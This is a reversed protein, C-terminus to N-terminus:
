FYVLVNDNVTDLQKLIGDISSYLSLSKTKGKISERYDFCSQMQKLFKTKNM